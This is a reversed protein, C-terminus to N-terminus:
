APLPLRGLKLVRVGVMYERCQAPCCAPKVEVWCNFAACSTFVFEVDTPNPWASPGGVGGDTVDYQSGTPYLTTNEVLTFPFNWIPSSTDNNCSKEPSHSNSGCAHAKPRAAREGNVWFHRLTAGKTVTSPLSAEFAGKVTVSPKWGTVRIPAGVVAPNSPDSSRWIVPRMPDASGDEPGLLLPGTGVHHVGPGMEVVPVTGARLHGRVLSRAQELTTTAPDVHVTVTVASLSTSTSCVGSVYMLILAFGMGFMM